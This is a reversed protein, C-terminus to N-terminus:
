AADKWAYRHHLGGLRPLDMIKATDSPRAQVPRSYPTEKDLGYHTRDDHYYDLYEHFLKYLHRKNLIIVHDLIERRVSGVFREAAGNQWPSQFSTKVPEIGLSRLSQDVLASFVSSRDHIM